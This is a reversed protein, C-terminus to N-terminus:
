VPSNQSGQYHRSKVGNKTKFPPWKSISILSPFFFIVIIESEANKFILKQVCNLFSSVFIKTKGEKFASYCFFFMLKLFIAMKYRVIWSSSKLFFPMKKMLCAFGILWIWFIQSCEKQLSLDEHLIWIQLASEFYTKLPVKVLRKVWLFQIRSSEFMFMASSLKKGKVILLVLLLHHLFM